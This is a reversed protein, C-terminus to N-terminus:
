GREFGMALFAWSAGCPSIKKFRYSVFALGLFRSLDFIVRFPYPPFTVPVFFGADLGTQISVFLM